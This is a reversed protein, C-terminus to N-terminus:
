DFEPQYILTFDPMLSRKEYDILSKSTEANAKAAKLQPLNTQVLAPIDKLSLRQQAQGDISILFFLFVTSLCYYWRIRLAIKNM